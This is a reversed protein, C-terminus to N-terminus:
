KSMNCWTEESHLILVFGRDTLILLFYNSEFYHKLKKRKYGKVTANNGLVKLVKVKQKVKNSKVLTGEM